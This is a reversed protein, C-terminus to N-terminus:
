LAIAIGLGTRGLLCPVNFPPSKPRSLTTNQFDVAHGRSSHYIAMIPPVCSPTSSKPFFFHKLTNSHLPCCQPYLSVLRDPGDARQIINNVATVRIVVTECCRLKDLRAISVMPDTNQDCGGKGDHHQRNERRSQSECGGDKSVGLRLLLLSYLRFSQTADRSM